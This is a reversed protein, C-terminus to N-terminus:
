TKKSKELYRVIDEICTYTVIYQEASQLCMNASELNKYFLPTKYKFDELIFPYVTSILKQLSEGGVRLRFGFGWPRKIFSSKIGYRSELHAKLIELENKPFAELCFWGINQVKGKNRNKAHELYGDCMWIHALAEEDIRSAIYHNMQKRGNYFIGRLKKFYPHKKNTVRYGIYGRRDKKVYFKPSTGTIQSVVDFIYRAYAEKSSYFDFRGNVDLSGDSSLVGILIKKIEKSSLLKM